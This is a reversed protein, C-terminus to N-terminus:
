HNVLTETLSSRCHKVWLRYWIILKVLAVPHHKSTGRGHANLKWFWVLASLREPPFIQLICNTIISHNGDTKARLAQYPPVSYADFASRDWCIPLIDQSILSIAAEREVRFLPKCRRANVVLELEFASLTRAPRQRTNIQTQLKEDKRTKIIPLWTTSNYFECDYRDNWWSDELLIAWLKWFLYRVM